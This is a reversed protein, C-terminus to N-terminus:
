LPSHTFDILVCAANLLVPIAANASTPAQHAGVRAELPSLLAETSDELETGVAAASTAEGISISFISVGNFSVPSRFSASAPNFGTLIVCDEGLGTKGL